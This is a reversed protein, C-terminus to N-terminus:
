TGRKDMIQGVKLVLMFRDVTFRAQKRGGGDVDNQVLNDQICRLQEEFESAFILSSQKSVSDRKYRIKRPRRHGILGPATIPGSSAYRAASVAARPLVRCWDDWAPQSGGTEM